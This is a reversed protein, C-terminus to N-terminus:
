KSQRLTSTCIGEKKCKYIGWIQKKLKCLGLTAWEFSGMNLKAVAQKFGDLDWEVVVQELDNSHLGKVDGALVELENHM